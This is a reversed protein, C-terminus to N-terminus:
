VLACSVSSWRICLCSAVQVRRTTAGLSCWSDDRYPEGGKALTAAAVLLRNMSITLARGGNRATRHAATGDKRRAFLREGARSDRDAFGCAMVWVASRRHKTEVPFKKRVNKSFKKKWIHLVLHLRNAFCKWPHTYNKSVFRIIIILQNNAVTISCYCNDLWATLLSTLNTM